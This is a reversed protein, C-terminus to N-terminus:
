SAKPVFACARIFLCFLVQVRITIIQQAPKLKM